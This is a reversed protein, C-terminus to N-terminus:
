FEYGIKYKNDSEAYLQQVEASSLAQDYIQVEDLMGKFYDGSGRRGIQLNGLFGTTLDGNISPTFVGKSEGNVYMTINAADYAFGIHSWEDQDINQTATWRGRWSGNINLNSQVSLQTGEGVLVFFYSLDNKLVYNRGNIAEKPNVWMFMSVEAPWLSANDGCNVYDDAGDFDLAAGFISETWDPCTDVGPVCSGDGLIGHNESGSSDKAENSASENFRWEGILDTGLSVRVTHSFEMAKKKNAEDRAGQMTVIIIGLLLGLVSIVMLLEILTFAKTNM